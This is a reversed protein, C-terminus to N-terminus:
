EEPGISNKKESSSILNKKKVPQGASKMKYEEPDVRELVTLGNNNRFIEKIIWEPHQELFEYLAINLGDGGGEGREGFTTTDHLIIYSNVKDAHMKLEARLQPARHLTDIFLLDTQDIETKLVDAQTFVFDTTDEAALYVENIDAGFRRPHVIDYSRMTQPNGALLAWTSVIKRVGMETVHDCQEAYKKLTPLHENIDSPKSCLENYKEEIM